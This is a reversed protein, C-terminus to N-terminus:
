TGKATAIDSTLRDVEVFHAQIAEIVLKRAARVVGQEPTLVVEDLSELVKEL